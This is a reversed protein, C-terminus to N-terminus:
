FIDTNKLISEAKNFYRDNFKLYYYCGSEGSRKGVSARIGAKLLMEKGKMAAVVGNVPIEM